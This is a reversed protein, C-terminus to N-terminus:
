EDGGTVADIAQGIRCLARYMLGYTYDILFRV